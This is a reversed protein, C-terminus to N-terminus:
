WATSVQWSTMFADSFKWFKFKTDLVMKSAVNSDSRTKREAPIESVPVDAPLLRVKEVNKCKNKVNWWNQNNKHKEIM